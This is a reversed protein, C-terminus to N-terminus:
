KRSHRNYKFQGTTDCHISILKMISLVRSLPTRVDDTTLAFASKTDKVNASGNQQLVPTRPVLVQDEAEEELERIADELSVSIRHIQSSTLQKSLRPNSPNPLPGLGDEQTPSISRTPSLSVLNSPPIVPSSPSEPSVSRVPGDSYADILANTMSGTTSESPTSSVSRNSNITRNSAPKRMYRMDRLQGAGFLNNSHRKVSRSPSSPSQISDHVAGSSLTSQSSQRVTSSTSSAADSSSISAASTDVKSPTKESTASSKQGLGFGTGRMRSLMDLLMDEEEQSIQNEAGKARQEAFRTRLNELNLTNGNSARLLTFRKSLSYAFCFINFFCM